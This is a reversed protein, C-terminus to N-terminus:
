RNRRDKGQSKNSADEEGHNPSTSAPPQKTTKQEQKSKYIVYAIGGFFGIAMVLVVIMDIGM